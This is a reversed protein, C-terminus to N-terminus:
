AAVQLSLISPPLQPVWSITLMGFVELILDLPNWCEMIQPRKLGFPRTLTSSTPSVGCMKSLARLPRGGRRPHMKELCSARIAELAHPFQSIPFGASQAPSRHASACLCRALRWFSAPRTGTNTGYMGAPLRSREM